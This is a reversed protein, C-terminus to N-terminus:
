VACPAPHPPRFHRHGIQDRRQGGIARQQDNFVVFREQLPEGGGHFAAAERYGGGFRDGLPQALEFGGRGSKGDDVHPELVAIAEVHDRREVAAPGIGGGEDKGAVAVD